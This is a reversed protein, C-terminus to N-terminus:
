GIVLHSLGIAWDEYLRELLKWCRLADQVDRVDIEEIEEYRSEKEKPHDEATKQVHADVAHRSLYGHYVRARGTRGTFRGDGCIVVDRHQAPENQAAPAAM